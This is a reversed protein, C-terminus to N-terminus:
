PMVRDVSSVYKSFKNQNIRLSKIINQVLELQNHDFKIEAIKYIPIKSLIKSNLNNFKGLRSSFLNGDITMRIGNKDALYERNYTNYVIPNKLLSKAQYLKKPMKKVFFIMFNNWNTWKHNSFDFEIRDKYGISNTKNKFEFFGNLPMKEKGYWRLRLKKRSSIGNLNDFYSDFEYTDFYINNIKRAEDVNRFSHDSTKLWSEFISFVNVSMPFKLEVRNM